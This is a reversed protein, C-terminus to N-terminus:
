IRINPFSQSKVTICQGEVYITYQILQETTYYASMLGYHIQVDCYNLNKILNSFFDFSTLLNCTNELMEKYIIFVNLIFFRKISVQFTVM